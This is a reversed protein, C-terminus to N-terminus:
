AVLLYQTLSFYLLIFFFDLVIYFTLISKVVTFCAARCFNCNYGEFEQMIVLKSFSTDILEEKVTFTACSSRKERKQM